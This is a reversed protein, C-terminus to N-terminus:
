QGRFERDFNKKKPMISNSFYFSPERELIWETSKPESAAYSSKRWCCLVLVNLTLFDTKLFLSFCPIVFLRFGSKICYQPKNKFWPKNFHGSAMSKRALYTGYSPESTWTTQFSRRRLSLNQVLGSDPEINIPNPNRWLSWGCSVMVYAVRGEIIHEASSLYRFFTSPSLGKSFKLQHYVVHIQCLNRKICSPVVSVDHIAYM